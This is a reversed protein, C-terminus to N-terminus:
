EAQALDFMRHLRVSFWAAVGAIPESKDIDPPAALQGAAQRRALARCLAQSVEPRAEVVAALDSKSLEYIMVPTRATITVETPHGTLLGVEGFHDGPGLRLWEVEGESCIETISVVGAGLIHLSQLLAGPKVLIEDTEYHHPEVKAALTKREAATLDVFIAILDLVREVASQPPPGAPQAQPPWVPLSQTSALAIGAAALHRSIYDFLENQARVSQAMEEVFFSLDFQIADGTVGKVIVLPAPTALILKTNLIAQRLIESGLAPSTKADLQVSVTIGHIDTPSSWNVIKAKAIVSNPMIALDRKVTLIHTARWNIEIVRGDTTGDISVWDGPRYPRSFNLVIGSFLDSLTSQLALGLVIAIVGSTALLGTVPLDFVYSIIAFIACLYVVGALLDQLLKGERPRHESAILVRLVSVVFWATWLWWAIKLIAHAADRLPVGTLKLPQYPVIGARALVITLVILFAVRTLARGLPRRRFLFHTGWGGFAFLVSAIVLPDKLVAAIWTPLPIM